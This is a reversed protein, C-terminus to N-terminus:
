QFQTQGCVTIDFAMGGVFREGHADQILFKTSQWTTRAGDPEITEEVVQLTEGSDLVALDNERLREATQPPWIESDTRALLTSPYAAFRQEFKRNAFVLRGDADKIWAIGPCNDMFARFRKESEVLKAEAKRRQSIDRVISCHFEEAGLSLHNAVIEVPIVRGDRARHETELTKSGVGRLQAFHEPWRHQNYHPDIDPISMRLLEERTYGLMECASPNVDVIRADPTIWYIADSAVDFAARTMRLEDEIRKRETIDRALVIFQRDEGGTVAMVAVSLEFWRTGQPLDLPYVAGRHSGQEDAAAIAALIVRAAADPLIDAVKRGLFVNPPAYLDGIAASYFGHFTGQRDVIFLLDPLASAIAELRAKTAQLENKIRKTASVQPAKKM